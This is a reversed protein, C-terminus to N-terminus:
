RRWEAVLKMCDCRWQCERDKCGARTESRFCAPRADVPQIMRHWRSSTSVTSDFAAQAPAQSLETHIM